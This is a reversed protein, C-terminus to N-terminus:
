RSLTTKQCKPMRVLIGVAEYVRNKKIQSFGIWELYGLTLMELQDVSEPSYGIGQDM